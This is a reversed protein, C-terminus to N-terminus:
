RRRVHFSSWAAAAVGRRWVRYIDKGRYGFLWFGGFAVPPVLVAVSPALPAKLRMLAAEAERPVGHRFFDAMAQRAKEGDVAFVM